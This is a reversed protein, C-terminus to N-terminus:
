RVVTVGVEIRLSEGSVPDTAAVHTATQGDRLLANFSTNFTRFFPLDAAVATLKDATTGVSSQEARIDLNFRADDLAEAHCDINTGVNRYNYSMFKGDKDVQGGRVPVEIGMRLSTRGGQGANVLMTFPLSSIRKEGELRAITILVRLPVLRDRRVRSTEALPTAKAPTGEAPPTEQAVLPLAPSLCLVVLAAATRTM